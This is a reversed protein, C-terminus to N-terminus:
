LSPLIVRTSCLLLSPAHIVGVYFNKGDILLARMVDPISHEDMWMEDEDQGWQAFSQGSRWCRDRVEFHAENVSRLASRSGDLGNVDAAM